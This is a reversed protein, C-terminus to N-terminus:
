DKDFDRFPDGGPKIKRTLLWAIIVIATEM